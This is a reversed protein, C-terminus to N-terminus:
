CKSKKEQDHRTLEKQAVLPAAAHIRDADARPIPSAIDRQPAGGSQYAAHGSKSALSHSPHQPRIAVRISKATQLRHPPRVAICASLLSFM